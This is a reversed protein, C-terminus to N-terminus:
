ARSSATGIAHAPGEYGIVPSVRMQALGSKLEARGSLTRPYVLRRRSPIPQISQLNPISMSAASVSKCSPRAAM